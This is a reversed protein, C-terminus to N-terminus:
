SHNLWAAVRNLQPLVFIFSMWLNWIKFTLRDEEVSTLLIGRAAVTSALSLGLLVVSLDSSFLGPCTYGWLIMFVGTTWRAPRDGIVLPVTKRGRIRDGAQDYMDQLHVTTLVVAALVAFWQVLRASVPLPSGLAVEMAGSLFCVYGIANISNRVLFSNDGGGLNNYWTGLLLLATSQRFGGTMYSSGVAMVYLMVMLREAQAPTMRKSPLTRWPKNIEDEQVASPNKQNNIAFPLLNTWIYLLVLPTRQLTTTVSIEQPLQLEYDEGALANSVGFVLSPAIITKVDSSTFLWLSYLHHLSVAALSKPRGLIMTIDM